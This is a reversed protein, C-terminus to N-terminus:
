FRIYRMPNSKVDRILSALLVHTRDLQRTLASDPHAAAIAGVPNSLLSRLTDVEALIHNANTVLTTDRRFRGINGKNSAVLTKISDAAAMARSARVQLDGRMVRTITGSGRTARASLSSTGASVDALDPLGGERYSGITGVPRTINASLQRTQAGLKAFAPRLAGVDEALDPPVAAPRAHVTDGDRLPPSALTGSSIYVVPAGILSGGGSKIRAYSDRRVSPLAEKLFETRILIRELGPVTAPRFSIDKVEGEKKGALWVDTGALVGPAEGTVVYLTVKKGHLGGVRAFLLVAITLAAIAAAAIMGGTLERWHLQRPM